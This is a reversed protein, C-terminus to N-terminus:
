EVVGYLRHEAFTLCHCRYEVSDNGGDVNADPRKTRSPLCYNADLYWTMDRCHRAASLRAQGEEDRTM